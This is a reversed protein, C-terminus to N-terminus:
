LTSIFEPSLDTEPAYVMVCAAQEPIGDVKLLSLPATDINAKQIQDAFADPLEAEGHGELVYVVPQEENVVYDIASTIAGEGDFSANISQNAVDPQSLYIDELAIYRSRDGHEVVLSNNQVTETTYQSAFTPYVDPNKKVVKIHDSLSEYQNLLNEIIGDEQDTQVIWYITVDEQLDNLVMKTNSTVSYLKSSSIDYRTLSPPLTHVLLNVVIVLALVLGTVMLSYSGGRFANRNAGGRLASHAKESLKM